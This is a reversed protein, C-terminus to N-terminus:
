KLYFVRELEKTIPQNNNHTKMLPAMFAWWKQMIQTQALEGWLAENEIELYAFLQGTERYLFISYNSAGHAKITKKLEPWIENHRKIYEDYAETFVNMIIAKTIM